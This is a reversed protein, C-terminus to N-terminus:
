TLVEKERFEKAKARTEDPVSAAVINWMEGALRCSQHVDRHCATPGHAGCPGCEVWSFYFGPYTKPNEGIKGLVCVMTWGCYPCPELDISPTSDYM